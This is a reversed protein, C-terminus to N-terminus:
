GALTDGLRERWLAALADLDARLERDTAGPVPELTDLVELELDELRVGPMATRIRGDAATTIGTQRAFDLRNRASALDLTTSLLGRGTARDRLLTVAAVKERRAYADALERRRDHDTTM